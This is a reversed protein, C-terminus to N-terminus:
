RELNKLWKVIDAHGGKEALTLATYGARNRLNLDVGGHVVLGKLANDTMALKNKGRLILGLVEDKALLNMTLLKVTEIHGSEAAYMLATYGKGDQLDPNAGKKLFLRVIETNGKQVAELFVSTNGYPATRDPDAGNNVLLEVINIDGGEVANSLAYSLVAEDFLNSGGWKDLLLEVIKRHGDHAAFGLVYHSPRANKKLLLRVIETYGKEVATELLYSGGNPDAGNDLLLKVVETYGRETAYNLANTLVANDFPVTCKSLLLKAINGYGNKLASILMPDTMKSRLIPSGYEAVNVNVRRQFNPNIGGHDLFLEVIKEYGKEVAKSLTRSLIDENFLDGSNQLFLRVIETHKEEVATELTCNGPKAGKNLLLRVIKTYGGRVTGYLVNSLTSEDLIDHCKSLLFKVIETHGHYAANSLACSQVSEYFLDSHRDLLFKFVEINGTEAANNLVNSLEKKDVSDGKLLNIIANSPTKPEVGNKLLLEAVGVYGNEAASDLESSLVKESFFDKRKELLLRVIRTYGERSANSLTDSSPNIGRELFFEVINMHEGQVANDLARSMMGKDLIDNGKELLLRVIKIHGGRAACDLATKRYEDVQNIDINRDILSKIEELDGARAAKFWTKYDAEHISAADATKTTQGLNDPEGALMAFSFNGCLLTSIVSINVLSRRMMGRKVNDFM